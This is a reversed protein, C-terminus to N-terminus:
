GRSEDVDAAHANGKRQERFQEVITDLMKRIDTVNDEVGRLRKDFDIVMDQAKALYEDLKGREFGAAKMVASVMMDMGNAM